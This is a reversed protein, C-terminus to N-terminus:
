PVPSWAPDSAEELLKTKEGGQWLWLGEDDTLLWPGGGGDAESLAMAANAIDGFDRVVTVTGDAAVKRIALSCTEDVSYECFGIAAPDSWKVGRITVEAEGPGGKERLVRPKAGEEDLLLAALVSQGRVGYSYALARDQPSWTLSKVGWIGRGLITVAKTQLNIKLLRSPNDDVTPQVGDDYAFCAVWEGGPSWCPLLYDSPKDTLRAAKGAAVDLVWLQAERWTEGRVYVLKGGDPSWSPATCDGSTTLQKLSRDALDMVWINQERIFALRGSPAGEAAWTPSSAAGLAGFLLSVLLLFASPLRPTVNATRM